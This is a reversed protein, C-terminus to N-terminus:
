ESYCEEKLYKESKAKAQLINDFDDPPKPWHSCLHTLASPTFPQSSRLSFQVKQLYYGFLKRVLLIDELVQSFHLNGKKVLNTYM